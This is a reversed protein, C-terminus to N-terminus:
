LKKIDIREIISTLASQWKLPDVELYTRLKRIDLLSNKPRLASSSYEKSTVPIINEHSLTLSFNFKEAQIIIEKAFGYWNTKGLASFHFLGLKLKQGELYLKVLELTILSIQETSTPSGFQDDVVRISSKSKALKLITLLFNRRLHSYVWSTRLIINKCGSDLIAIEGSRKSEGYVNLPKCEDRELYPKKKLGDFVYDTSFHVLLSDLERSIESLLKPGESNVRFAELRNKEALDVQTFGSANIIIDPKLHFILEKLHDKDNFDYRPRNLEHLECLEDFTNSLAQGLQGSSGVLLIKPKSM